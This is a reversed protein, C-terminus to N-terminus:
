LEETMTYQHTLQGSTYPIIELTYPTSSCHLKFTDFYCLGPDVNCLLPHDSELIAPSVITMYPLFNHLWYNNLTVRSIKMTDQACDTM